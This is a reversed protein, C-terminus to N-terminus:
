FVRSKFPFPTMPEGRKVVITKPAAKNAKGVRKFAWAVFVGVEVDVLVGLLVGVSVLVLVGEPVGVSLGVAV